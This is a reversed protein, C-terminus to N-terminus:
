NEKKYQGFVGDFEEIAVALKKGDFDNAKLHNIKRMHYDFEQLLEKPIEHTNYEHDCVIPM